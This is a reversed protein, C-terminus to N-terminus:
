RRRLGSAALPVARDDNESTWDAAHQAIWDDARVRFKFSGIRHRAGDAACAEVYYDRGLRYKRSAFTTATGACTEQGSV